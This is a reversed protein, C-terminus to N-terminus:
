YNTECRVNDLLNSGYVLSEAIHSYDNSIESAINYNKGKSRLNTSLCFSYNILCLFVLLVTYIVIKSKM